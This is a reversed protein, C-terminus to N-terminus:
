THFTIHTLTGEDYTSTASFPLTTQPDHIKKLIHQIDEFMPVETLQELTMWHVTGEDSNTLATQNTISKTIFLMVNNGFFNTVHIVGVLQTNQVQVGTEELIEREANVIVDEGKEIHGGLFNYYGAVDKKKESYRIMLYEHADNQVICLSRPIVHHRETPM